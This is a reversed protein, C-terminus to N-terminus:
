SKRRLSHWYKSIMYPLKLHWQVTRMEIKITNTYDWFSLVSKYFVQLFSLLSVNFIVKEYQM